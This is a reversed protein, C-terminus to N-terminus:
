RFGQRNGVCNKTNKGVLFVQKQSTWIVPFKLDCLISNTHCKYKSYKLSTWLIFGANKIFGPNKKYKNAPYIM